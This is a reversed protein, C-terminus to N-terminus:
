IFFIFWLFTSLFMATPLCFDSFCFFANPFSLVVYWHRKLLGFHGGFGALSQMKFHQRTKSFLAFITRPQHAQTTKNNDQLVERYRRIELLFLGLCLQDAYEMVKCLPGFGEDYFCHYRGRIKCFSTFRCVCHEEIEVELIVCYALEKKQLYAHM